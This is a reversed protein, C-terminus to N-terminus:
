FRAQVLVNAGLREPIQDGAREVEHKMGGLLEIQDDVAHAPEARGVDVIERSEGHAGDADVDRIRVGARLM